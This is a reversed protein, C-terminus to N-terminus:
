IFELQQAESKLSRMEYLNAIAKKSYYIEHYFEQSPKVSQSAM